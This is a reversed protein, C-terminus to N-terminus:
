GFIKVEKWLAVTHRREFCLHSFFSLSSFDIYGNAQLVLNFFFHCRLIKLILNRTQRSFWLFRQNLNQLLKSDQNCSLCESATCDCALKKLERHRLKDRFHLYHWQTLLLSSYHTYIFIRTHTQTHIYTCIYTHVYVCMCAFVSLLGSVCYNCYM